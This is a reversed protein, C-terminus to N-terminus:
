ELNQVYIPCLFYNLTMIVVNSFMHTDFFYRITSLVIKSGVYLSFLCTLVYM